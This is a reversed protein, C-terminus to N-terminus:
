DKLYPRLNKLLGRKGVREFSTHKFFTKFGKNSMSEIDQIILNLDRNFFSVLKSEQLPSTVSLPKRNWPCVEQCIDCGFVEQSEVPYGAPAAEDKFTEITFTSICLSSDITRRGPLIAKTPCADICRTCNGCHDVEIERSAVELKQNLLLSGILQYSGFSKNILMSNKGFWGLGARQALDRELVPHIDLSIQYELKPHKEKLYNGIFDLKEKIWYHYDQDDFGVTYSAIKQTPNNELQFKKADRYDFLFTIFSECDPYVEKLSKRKDMRHDALYNLPGHMGEEVWKTYYDYTRPILEESYANDVIKFSSLKSALLGLLNNM